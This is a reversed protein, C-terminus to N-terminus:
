MWFMALWEAAIAPKSEGEIEVVVEQVVQLRDADLKDISKLVFRGRVRAGSRVPAVFRIRNFGYNVGMRLGSISPAAEYNMVAMMSLVLLGHAITGGFPTQAALEPNVHIFQHDETLDAFADIMAQDIARWPSVGIEKGLYTEYEELTVSRTPGQM